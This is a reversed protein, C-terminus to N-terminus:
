GTGLDSPGVVGRKLGDAEIAAVEREIGAPEVETGLTTAELVPHRKVVPSALEDAAVALRQLHHKELIAVRGARGKVSHGRRTARNSHIAPRCLHKAGAGDLRPPLEACLHADGVRLEPGDLPAASRGAIESSGCAHRGTPAVGIGGLHSLAEHDAVYAAVEHM